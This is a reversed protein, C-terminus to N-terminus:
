LSRFGQGREASPLPLVRMRRLGSDFGSGESAALQRELAPDGPVSSRVDSVDQSAVLPSASGLPSGSPFPMVLM